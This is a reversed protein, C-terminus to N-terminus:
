ITHWEGEIKRRRQQARIGFYLGICSCGVVTSPITYYPTRGRWEQMDDIETQADARQEASPPPDPEFDRIRTLEEEKITGEIAAAEADAKAQDVQVIYEEYNIVRDVLYKTRANAYADMGGWIAMGALMGFLLGRGFGSKVSKSKATALVTFVAAMFMAIQPSRHWTMAPFYCMMYVAVCLVLTRIIRRRRTDKRKGKRKKM